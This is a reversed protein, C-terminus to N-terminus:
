PRLGKEREWEEPDRAGKTCNCHPCLLQMNEDAHAGGRALPVRHDLHYGSQKLDCKCGVCLWKQSEQLKKVLGRSLKGGNELKRARRNQRKLRRAEPNAAHWEAIKADARARNKRRWERCDQRLKERNNERYEKHFAVWKELNDAKWKERLANCKEPNAARYAAVQAKRAEKNAHYREREIRRKRDAASEVAETM